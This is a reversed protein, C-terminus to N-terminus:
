IDGTRKNPFVVVKKKEETEKRKRSCYAGGNQLTYSCFMSPNYVYM